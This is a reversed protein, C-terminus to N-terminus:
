ECEMSFNFREQVEEVTPCQTERELTSRGAVITTTPFLIGLVGGLAGGIAGVLASRGVITTTVQYQDCEWLAVELRTGLDCGATCALM